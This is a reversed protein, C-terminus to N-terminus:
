NKYSQFIRDQQAASDSQSHGSSNSMGACGALLAFMTAAIVIKM